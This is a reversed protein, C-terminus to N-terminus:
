FMNNHCVNNASVYGICEGTAVEHRPTDSCDHCKLAVDLHSKDPHNYTGHEIEEITHNGTQQMYRRWYAFFEVRQGVINGKPHSGRADQEIHEAHYVIGREKLRVAM